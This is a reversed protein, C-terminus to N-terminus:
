PQLKGKRYPAEQLAELLLARGGAPTARLRDDWHALLDRLHDRLATTEALHRDLQDLKDAAMARVEACPAGGRERTRLIKALEALSFGLALARRVLRVRTASEVPYQRYGSRTRSPRALVGVREYHRLTDTSIGCLRALEGARLTQPTQSLVKCPPTDV